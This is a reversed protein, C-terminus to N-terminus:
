DLHLKLLQGRLELIFLDQTAEDYAMSVPTILPTALVKSGTADFQTLRGPPAPNASQNLSFELVYFQSGHAATERWLVDTASTLGNIFPEVTGADPNVAQVRTNGPVFPFGSLFSVLLQNGYIRVSTPVPDVVPPGVPTPNPVQPFRVVRKWRGTATDVRVIVNASADNVYLSKGDPTLALGWPNSFRLITNPSPEAYPFRALVSARATSGSGDSITAEGGDALTQRHDASITFTGTISDLDQDFKVEIVSCFLPSSYGAPNYVATGPTQGRRETDGVGLAFYLTRERVALGTPGSGGTLTSDTGSPLGEFLSRRAGGRTVFSIRGSDTATSTESILLNGRPTLVVKNPGQLGTAVVEPQCWAPAVVILISLFHKKFMPQLTAFPETRLLSIPLVRRM